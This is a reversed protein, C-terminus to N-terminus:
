EFVYILKCLSSFFGVLAGHTLGTTVNSVSSLSSFLYSVFFGFAMCGLYIFTMDMSESSPFYDKFLKAYFVWGLLFDVIGGVIGGAIFNKVNM